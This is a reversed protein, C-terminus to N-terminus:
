RPPSARSRALRRDRQGALRRSSRRTQHERMRGRQDGSPHLPRRRARPCRGPLRGDRDRAAPGPADSIGESKEDMYPVAGRSGFNCAHFYSFRGLRPARRRDAGGAGALLDGCALARQPRPDRARHPPDRLRRRPQRGTGLAQARIGARGADVRAGNLGPVLRAAAAVFSRRSTAHRIELLGARWHHAAMRWTGPWGITAALDRPRVKWPSYADRAAVMLASPGILVEGGLTRTLHAGLFPLEPDPVPYVNARVLDAQPSRLRLYGGRFPVIRPDAPAGCRVALRDSWLGGCFVAASTATTGRSHRLVTRGSGPEADFVRTGSHISGGAREVDDAFAEAVTVFDVVGTAPSHIAAVGRAHPEIEGIEGAGLRRLGPVGNARGRRELEDLRGLETEDTAVVLKGSRRYPIDREECYAYLRRAGEVCM